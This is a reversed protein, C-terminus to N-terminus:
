KTKLFENFYQTFATKMDVLKFGLNTEDFVFGLIFCNQSSKKFPNCRKQMHFTAHM